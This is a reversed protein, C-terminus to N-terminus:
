ISGNSGSDLQSTDKAKGFLMHKIKILEEKGRGFALMCLSEHGM